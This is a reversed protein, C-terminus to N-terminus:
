PWRVHCQCHVWLWQGPKPLHQRTPLEAVSLVGDGSVDKGQLWTSVRV